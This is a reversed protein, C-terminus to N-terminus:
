LPKLVGITYLWRWQSNAVSEHQEKSPLFATLMECLVPIAQEERMKGLCLASVFRERPESSELLPLLLEHAALTKTYGLAFTALLKDEGQGEKFIRVFTELDLGGWRKLFSRVQEEYGEYGMEGYAYSVYAPWTSLQKNM